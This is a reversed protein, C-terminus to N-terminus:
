PCSNELGRRRLDVAIGADVRLSFIIPPVDVRNARARAVVFALTAGLGQEKIIPALVSQLDLDSSDEIGIARAHVRVIPPHHRVENDLRQEPSVDGDVPVARLRAREAIDIIEYVAEDSQHRRS